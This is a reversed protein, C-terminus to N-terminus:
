TTLHASDLMFNNRLQLGSALANEWNFYFLFPVNAPTVGYSPSTPPLVIALILWQSYGEMYAVQLVFM